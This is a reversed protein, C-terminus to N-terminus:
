YDVRWKAVRVGIAEGVKSLVYSEGLDGNTKYVVGIASLEMATQLRFAGKGCYVIGGTYPAPLGKRLTLLQIARIQAPPMKNPDIFYRDKESKRNAM